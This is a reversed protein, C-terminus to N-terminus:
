IEKEREVETDIKKNGNGTAKIFADTIDFTMTAVQYVKYGVFGFVAVILGIAIIWFIM